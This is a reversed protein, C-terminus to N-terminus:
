NSKTEKSKQNKAEKAEGAKLNKVPKNSSPKAGICGCGCPGEKKNM